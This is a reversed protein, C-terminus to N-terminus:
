LCLSSYAAKRELSYVTCHLINAKLLVMGNEVKWWQILSAGAPNSEKGLLQSISALVHLVGADAATAPPYEKHVQQLEESLTVTQNKMANVAAQEQKLSEKTSSLEAELTQVRRTLAGERNQYEGLAKITTARESDVMATLEKVQAELLRARENANTAQQASARHEARLTTLEASAAELKAQMSQLRANCTSQVAELEGEAKNARRSHSEIVEHQFVLDGRMTELESVLSDIVRPVGRRDVAEVINGRGFLPSQKGNTPPGQKSESGRVQDQATHNSRATRCAGAM